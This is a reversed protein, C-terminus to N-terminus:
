YCNPFKFNLCYIPLLNYFYYFVYIHKGWKIHGRIIKRVDFYNNNKQISAYILLLFALVIFIFAGHHSLIIKLIEM